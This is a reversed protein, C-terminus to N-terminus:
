ATQANSTPWIVSVIWLHERGCGLRRSDPKRHINAAGEGVKHGHVGDAPLHHPRLRVGSRTLEAVADEIRQSTRADRGLRYVLEDVAGGNHDVGDGLPTPCRGRQDSGAPEPVNQLDAPRVSGVQVVECVGLRHREHRPMQAKLDSLPHGVEADSGLREAGGFDRIDRLDKRGGPHRCDCNAQQVRPGVGLM